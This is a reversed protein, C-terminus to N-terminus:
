QHCQCDGGERLMEALERAKSSLELALEGITENARALRAELDRIRNEYVEFPDM